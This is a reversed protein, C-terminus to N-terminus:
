LGHLLRRRLSMLVRRRPSTVCTAGLRTENQAV